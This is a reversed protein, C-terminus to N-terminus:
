KRDKQHDEYIWKLFEYDYIDHEKLIKDRVIKAVGDCHAFTGIDRAFQVVKSSHPIRKQEYERFVSDIKLPGYKKYATVLVDADELAQAAGQGAYQLMPHAADGLLVLRGRSWKSLPNRDYVPLRFNTQISKLANKVHKCGISFRQNLEEKTGWEDTDDPIKKSKFIAAQNYSEGRRIPYQVLHIDPGIWFQVNELGAEKSVQKIDITGRYTVYGASIPAGDDCVFKRLSSWLGDAAIVMNCDYRMGDACEVMISKPREDVSTVTRDTEMTIMSNALCAQYIANFLDARHVVIYPYGFTEIFKAGLDICTLRQGTLADMWVIQKPFFANAQVQKLVDLRDLIRSCNPALQMGAGIEGFETKKEFLRVPIGARAFSLATVMGSIGGGVILISVSRANTLPHPIRTHNIVNVGNFIRENRFHKFFLRHDREAIQAYTMSFLCIDNILEQQQNYSSLATQIIHTCHDANNEITNQTPIISIPPQCHSNAVIIAIQEALIMLNAVTDFIKWNIEYMEHKIPISSIVSFQKHLSCPKIQHFQETEISNKKCLIMKDTTTTTTTTTVCKIYQRIFVHLIEIIETDSFGQHYAILVLNTALRKLDWTFPAIIKKHRRIKFIRENNIDDFYYHFQGIHLDGHICTPEMVQFTEQYYQKDEYFLAVNHQYFVVPNIAIRRFYAHWAKAEYRKGAMQYKAFMQILHKLREQNDCLLIDKISISNSM